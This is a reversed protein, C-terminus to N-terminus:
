LQCKDPPLGSHHHSVRVRGTQGADGEGSKWKSKPEWQFPFGDHLSPIRTINRQWNGAERVGPSTTRKWSIGSTGTKDKDETRRLFNEHLPHLPLYPPRPPQAYLAEGKLTRWMLVANDGDLVQDQSVAEKVTM